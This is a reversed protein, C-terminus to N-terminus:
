PEHGPEIDRAEQFGLETQDREAEAEVPELLYGRHDGLDLRELIRGAFWNPCDALVPAGGPGPSWEVKALKDVEDGTEGGFLEALERADEPVFHIAMSEATEALRFTRNKNSICALFRPPRISCQTAFGVLCGDREGGAAVTAIFLPYDLRSVLKQFPQSL